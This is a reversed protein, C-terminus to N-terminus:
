TDCGAKDDGFHPKEGSHRGPTGRLHHEHTASSAFVDHHSREVFFFMVRGLRMNELITGAKPGDLTPTIPLYASQKRIM